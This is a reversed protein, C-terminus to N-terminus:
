TSSLLLANNLISPCKMLELIACFGFFNKITQISIVNDVCVDTTLYSGLCYKTTSWYERWLAAGHDRTIVTDLNLFCNTRYWHFLISADGTYVVLICCSCCSDFILPFLSSITLHREDVLCWMFFQFSLPINHHMIYSLFADHSHAKPKFYERVDTLSAINKSRIFIFFSCFFWVTTSHSQKTHLLTRILYLVKYSFM